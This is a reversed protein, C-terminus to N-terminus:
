KLVIKKTFVRDSNSITLFYVGKRYESFDYSQSFTHNVYPSSSYIKHGLINYIEITYMGPKLNNIDLTIKDITPNPYIGIDQNPQDFIASPLQDGMNMRIMPVRSLWYWSGFTQGSNLCGNKQIYCTTPRAYLSMGVLTTDLPHAYGGVAAMHTGPIISIPSDFSVTVWSGLDSQQLTYDESQELFIKDNNADIEYLSVFIDSGSVSEDDIFVSISSVDDAAFVDYYTGIIMGGCSRGLGYDTYNFGDDRAYITDTVISRLTDIMTNTSDSSASVAFDYIGVVTPSFGPNIVFTNTDNSNIITPATSSSFIPSGIVDNVVVDFTTNQSQAGLNAVVGEITYPQAAAQTIPYLTYDLGFGDAVPTTFWGGYNSEVLELKHNPTEVIKMDDIMWFYVRASWGIKIYVTSQNGAINSINLSLYEPNASAQNNTASGQVFFPTWSISDNSVLVELNVSNNFRFSHEFELSVNPYGVTNIASTTFYSDIYEYTSGSPQGYSYHNASDIDSILFGNSGTTSNIAANASSGQNGNWYGWSGDLSWQWNCTAFGGTTNNTTRSWDSPFGNSFDESWIVTASKNLNIDKKIVKNTSIQDIYEEQSFILSTTLLSLFFSLFYRM